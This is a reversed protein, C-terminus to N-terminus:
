RVFERNGRCTGIAIYCIVLTYQDYKDDDNIMM